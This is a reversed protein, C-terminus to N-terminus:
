ALWYLRSIVLMDFNGAVSADFCVKRIWDPGTTECGIFPATVRDNPNAHELIGDGHTPIWQTDGDLQVWMTAHLARRDYLAKDGLISLHTGVGRIRTGFELMIPTNNPMTDGPPYSAAICTEGDRFNVDITSGNIRMKAVPGTANILVADGNVDFLNPRNRVSQQNESISQGDKTIDWPLESPSATFKSKKEFYYIAM